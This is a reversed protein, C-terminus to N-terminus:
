RRCGCHRGRIRSPLSRPVRAVTMLDDLDEGRGLREDTKDPEPDSVWLSGDATLRSM